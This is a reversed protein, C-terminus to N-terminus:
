TRAASRRPRRDQWLPATDASACTARAAPLGASTWQQLWIEAALYSLITAAPMALSPDPAALCAELKARDLYGDAVLRGDLLNERLYERNGRVVQQYFVSGTGKLQRRRIEAPLLDAFARRALGRSIGGCLATYTPIQLMVEWVPQSSLPDIHEACEGSRFVFDYFMPSAVGSVHNQKGPPLRGYPALRALHTAFDAHTVSGLLEDRVLTPRQLVGAAPLYPRRLLGHALVKRMVTWVSERSLRATALIHQWLGAGLGHLCAYDIAPLPQMTALLVSDGGQGSFFAETAHTRILELEAEDSEIMTFYASPRVAPRTHWLRRLDMSVTRQREILPVNWRQAVLRAFHREDGHSAVARLKAATAADVGPLHLDEHQLAADISMNLYSVRPRSPAHALCGAIISSDLGGSLKHTIHRYCSAWADVTSQVASRLKSAAEDVDELRASDAIQAPNWLQTRSTTRASVTLREGPPLDEVGKLGTSRSIPRGHVLWLALYGCDIALPLRIFRLCDEVHSFFVDIDEHRAHYCPRNGTPDRFVHHEGTAEDRLIAVYSGWYREILHRGGSAVILGSTSDDLVVAPASAYDTRQREFLRGLVVGARNALPYAAMSRNRRADDHLVCMGPAECVISWDGRGLALENRVSQLVHSGRASRPDLLFAVFRQV